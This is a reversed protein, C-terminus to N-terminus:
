MDLHQEDELQQEWKLDEKRQTIEEERDDLCKRLRQNHSLFAACKSTIDKRWQRVM